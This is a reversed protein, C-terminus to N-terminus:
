LVSISIFLTFVQQGLLQACYAKLTNFRLEIASWSAGSGLRWSQCVRASSSAMGTSPAETGLLLVEVWRSPSGLVEASTEQEVSLCM